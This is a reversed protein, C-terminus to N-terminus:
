SSHVNISQFHVNLFQFHCEDTLLQWFIRFDQGRGVKYEIVKIKTNPAMINNCYINIYARIHFVLCILINIKVM